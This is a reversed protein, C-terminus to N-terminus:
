AIRKWTTIVSDKLSGGIAERWATLHPTELHQKFAAENEWTEFFLLKGAGEAPVHVRYKHCGEEDRTAEILAPLGEMVSAPVEDGFDLSALVVLREKKSGKDKKEKKEPKEKKEAKEAAKKLKKEEKGMDKEKDKGM